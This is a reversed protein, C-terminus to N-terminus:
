LNEWGYNINKRKKNFDYHGGLIDKHLEELM